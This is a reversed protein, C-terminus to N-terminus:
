SNNAESVRRFREVTRDAKPTTLQAMLWARMPHRCARLRLLLTGLMLADGSRAAPGAM